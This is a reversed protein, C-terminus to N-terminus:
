NTTLPKLTLLQLNTFTPSPCLCAKLYNTSALTTFTAITRRLDSHHLEPADLEGSGPSWRFRFSVHDLFNTTAALLTKVTLHRLYVPM